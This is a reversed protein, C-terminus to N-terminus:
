AMAGHALLVSMQAHKRQLLLDRQLVGHQLHAPTPVHKPPHRPAPLQAGNGRLVCIRALWIKRFQALGKAGRVLPVPIPVPM